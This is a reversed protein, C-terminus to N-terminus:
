DGVTQDFLCLVRPPPPRGGGGGGGMLRPHSSMLAPLGSIEAMPFLSYVCQLGERSFKESFFKGSFSHGLPYGILGYERM